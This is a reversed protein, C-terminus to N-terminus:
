KVLVQEFAEGANSILVFEIEKRVDEHIDDIDPANEAPLLIKRIGARHAALVKEKIGGVPLVKGTLTIEGTMSIDKRAPTGTLASVMATCMTVGASPGDKPTAGEPIHIHIDKTKYFDEEIGLKGSVSRIYSLGAKASEQMVDGLQGTLVLKGTGPLVVAEIFLTDGGVVTWAMGTTVGIETKGEIIDYHYKKKGLFDTINDATIDVKETEGSVMKRATKRCLNAIERELNRVGSERTYYNVLSSVADKSISIKEADLGHEKVKKPILYRDAIALKEEETYGSIQIIEMRDLLPRPITDTTNATTIFMVKSLDFPVELYHDTYERNQEPDLVELLASAPDGKYDAGIKDVEDFLFVPNNTGADKIGSIIRGPIAGIYTRRHGRIEAEDRVGGLSMRFFERNLARAISRAISTKGVGPPGVLCLIPGKLSDTLKMVSIYELIREKVKELGFHDEELVEEARKLDVQADSSVNWPLSLITEIYTRSVTSEASMPQMKSFRKIEKEIKQHTKEELGLENLQRLWEAQEGEVDEDMGLEGQIARMQERLYYEKQNQNVQSKVKASIDQEIKLIEIERVLIENIKELREGADFTELLQQREELKINLHSALVDAFVSVNDIERVSGITDGNVRKTLEAYKEFNNEVNRKLAKLQATNEEPIQDPIEEVACQLYPEESVLEAIRARSIGEVLIRITDGQLKLMQKIRAIVGVNYYDDQGPDEVDEDKQSTLFIHQNAIMANELAKISKERGVDFHLVMKPLIGLGRLPIMPLINRDEGSEDETKIDLMEDLIGSIEELNNNKRNDDM